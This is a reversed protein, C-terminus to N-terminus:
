LHLYRDNLKITLTFWKHHIPTNHPIACTLLIHFKAYPSWPGHIPIPFNQNSFYFLHFTIFMFEHVYTFINLYWVVFNITLHMLIINKTDNVWFNLIPIFHFDMITFRYIFPIYHYFTKFFGIEYCYQKHISQNLLKSLIFDFYTITPTCFSVFM